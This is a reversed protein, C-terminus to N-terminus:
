RLGGGRREDLDDYLDEGAEGTFLRRARARIKKMPLIVWLMQSVLVGALIAIFVIDASISVAVLGFLLGFFVAMSLLRFATKGNVDERDPLDASRFWQRLDLSM